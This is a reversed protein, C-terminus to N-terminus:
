KTGGAFLEYASTMTDGEVRVVIPNQSLDHRLAILRKQYVRLKELREMDPQRTIRAVSMHLINQFSVPKLGHSTYIKNIADRIESVVPPIESCTLILNGKDVLLYKYQIDVGHLRGLQRRLEANNSIEAFIRSRDVEGTGEFIGDAITSHLPFDRGPFILEINLEDALSEIPQVVRQEIELRSKLGLRLVSVFRNKLTEPYGAFDEIRGERVAQRGEIDKRAYNQGVMGGFDKM